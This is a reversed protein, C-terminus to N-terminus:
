ATGAEGEAGCGGATAVAVERNSGALGWAAACSGRAYHRTGLMGMLGVSALGPRNTCAKTRGAGELTAMSVAPTVEGTGGAAAM